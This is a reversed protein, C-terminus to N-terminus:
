LCFRTKGFLNQHTPRIFTTTIDPSIKPYGLHCAIIGVLNIHGGYQILRCVKEDFKACLSAHCEMPCQKYQSLVSYMAKGELSYLMMGLHCVLSTWDEGVGGVSYAACNAGQPRTM